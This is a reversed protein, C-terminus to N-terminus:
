AFVSTSRMAGALPVGQPLESVVHKLKVAKLKRATRPRSSGRVALLDTM